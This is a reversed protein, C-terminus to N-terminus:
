PLLMAIDTLRPNDDDAYEGAAWRAAFEAGTIGLVEQAEKELLAQVAGPPMEEVTVGETSAHMISM